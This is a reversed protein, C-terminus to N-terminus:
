KYWGSIDGEAIEAYLDKHLRVNTARDITV